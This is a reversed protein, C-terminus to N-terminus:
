GWQFIYFWVITQSYLHTAATAVYYLQELLTLMTDESWSIWMTQAHVTTM